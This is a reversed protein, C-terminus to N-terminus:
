LMTTTAKRNRQASGKHTQFGEEATDAQKPWRKAEPCLHEKAGWGRSKQNENRNWLLEWRVLVISRSWLFGLYELYSWGDQLPQQPLNQLPTRKKRDQDLVLGNWYFIPFVRRYAKLSNRRMLWDMCIELNPPSNDRHQGLCHRCASNPRM